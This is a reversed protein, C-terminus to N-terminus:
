IVTYVSKKQFIYVLSGKKTKDKKLQQKEKHSGKLPCVPLALGPSKSPLVCVALAQV